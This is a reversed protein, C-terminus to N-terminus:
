VGEVLISFVKDGVDSWSRDMAEARSLYLSSRHITVPLHMRHRTTGRTPVQM